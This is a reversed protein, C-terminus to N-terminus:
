HVSAFHEALLPFIGQTFQVCNTVVQDPNSGEYPAVVRVLSVDSRRYRILDPLLRLKAHFEEAWVDRANQYWYLVVIHQNAQEMTFQNVPIPQARGPVPVNVLKSSSVLWGSGPLCIKPSHPGYNNQLSKFYAVFLDITGGSRQDVYDRLIYEDPRLYATVDPGISHEGSSKWPGIQWPLEHLGPIGIKQEDIKLMRSASAQFVLILCAAAFLGYRASALAKSKGM